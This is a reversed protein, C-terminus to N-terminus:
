RIWKELEEEAVPTFNWMDVGVNIMLPLGEEQRVLWSDHVHGHILAVEGSPKPRKDLFRPTTGEHDGVYPLHHLACRVGCVEMSDICDLINAGFVSEYIGLFASRKEQTKFKHLYDLYDHNGAVLYKLGNLRRGFHPVVFERQGMAFDGLHFVVDSHGVVKNWREVMVEEMEPVSAFPRGHEIAKAHGFHTDSTFFKRL